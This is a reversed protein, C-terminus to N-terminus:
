PKGCNMATGSIRCDIRSASGFSYAVISEAMAAYTAPSRVGASRAAIASHFSDKVSYRLARGFHNSSYPAPWNASAASQRAFVVVGYPRAETSVICFIIL